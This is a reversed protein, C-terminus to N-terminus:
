FLMRWGKVQEIRGSYTSFWEVCSWECGICIIKCFATIMSRTLLKASCKTVFSNKTKRFGVTCHTPFFVPKGNNITVKKQYDVKSNFDLNTLIM